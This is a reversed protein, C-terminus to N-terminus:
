APIAFPLEADRAAPVRSVRSWGSAGDAFRLLWVGFAGAVGRLGAGAGGLSVWLVPGVGPIWFGSASFGAAPACPKWLM